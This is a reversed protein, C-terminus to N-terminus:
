TQMKEFVGASVTMGEIDVEQYFLEMKTPSMMEGWYYGDEDVMNITVNDSGIVGLAVEASRPSLKPVIKGSFMTGNQETIMLMEEGKPWYSVTENPMWATNKEWGVSDMVGTWNGVMDPMEATKTTQAMAPVCLVLLLALVIINRM